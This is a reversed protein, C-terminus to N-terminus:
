KAGETQAAVVQPPLESSVLPENKADHEQKAKQLTKFTNYAMIIIGTLFMAGGLFRVFYGPYSAIHSELFSYTLGHDESYARWMLGQTIGNVWM